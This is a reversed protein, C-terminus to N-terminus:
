FLPVLFGRDGFDVGEVVRGYALAKFQVKEWRDSEVLLYLLTEFLDCTRVYDLVGKGRGKCITM